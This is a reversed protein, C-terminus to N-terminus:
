TTILRYNRDHEQELPTPPVESFRKYIGQTRFRSPAHAKHLTCIYITESINNLDPYLM